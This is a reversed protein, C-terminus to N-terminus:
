NGAPAKSDHKSTCFSVVLSISFKKKITKVLVAMGGGGKKERIKTLGQEERTM